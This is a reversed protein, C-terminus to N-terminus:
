CAESTSRFFVMIVKRVIMYVVVMFMVAVTTTLSGMAQFYGTTSLMVAFYAYLMMLVIGISGIRCLLHQVLLVTLPVLAAFFFFGKWGFNIYGEVMAPVPISGERGAIYRHVDWEVIIQQHPLLGHITPLTMGGYLGNEHVMAVSGAISQSYAGFIRFVLVELKSVLDADGYYYNIVILTPLLTAVLFLIERGQLRIVPYHGHAARLYLYTIIISLAVMLVGAKNANLVPIVLTFLLLLLFPWSRSFNRSYLNMMSIVAIMMPLILFGYRYIFYYEQGITMNIRYNLVSEQNLTGDLLHFILFDNVSAYYAAIVSLM